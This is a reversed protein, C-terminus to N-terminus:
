RLYQDFWALLVSYAERAAAENYRQGTDNFFGHEAGTFTRIEYTLGAAKLAAEARERSANVRDDLEAYVGLVAAKAGSFDPAEPAPGYFPAAAALRSEGADLLNWTMGGGFCFGVAGVKKDPVRRELEDIGAQLDAILQDAPAAALAAQVQAEDPLASTGGVRSLLDVSMAAYGAGAFRSVLDDFHPTRGRNEHIVLLAATPEAPAAWAAQLEEGPGPFRISEAPIGTAPSAATTPADTATPSAPTGGSAGAPGEDAGDGCGALLATAGAVSFGFLGLRRLAERRTLLGDALDLAVEEALYDNLAM